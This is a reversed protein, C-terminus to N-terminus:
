RCKWLVALAVRLSSSGAFEISLMREVPTLTMGTIPDAISAAFSDIGVQV